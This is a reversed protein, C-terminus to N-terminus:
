VLSFSGASAALIMSAMLCSWFMSDAIAFKFYHLLGRHMCTIYYSTYHSKYVRRASLYRIICKYVYQWFEEAPTRRVIEATGNPPTANNWTNNIRRIADAITENDNLTRDYCQETNWANDCTAWPLVKAFSMGLFYLVWTIIINYYFAVVASVIIMGWGVGKFLPSLRWVSLPSSSSFQGIILELYFLPLGCV